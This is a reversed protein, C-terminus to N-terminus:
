VDRRSASTREVTVREVRTAEDQQRPLRWEVRYLFQVYKADDSPIRWGKQEAKSTQEERTEIKTEHKSGEGKTDVKVDFRHSSPYDHEVWAHPKEVKGFRARDLFKAIRIAAYSSSDTSYNVLDSRMPELVTEYGPKTFIITWQVYKLDEGSLDQDNWPRSSSGMGWNAPNAWDSWSSRHSSVSSTPQSTPTSGGNGHGSSSSSSSSAGMSQGLAQMGSSMWNIGAATMWFPATMMNNMAQGIGSASSSGTAADQSVYSSTRSSPANRSWNSQYEARTTM